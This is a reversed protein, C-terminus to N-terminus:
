KQAFLTTITLITVVLFILLYNRLRTLASDDDSSILLVFLIGILVGVSLVIGHIKGLVISSLTIVVLPIIFVIQQYTHSEHLKARHESFLKTLVLGCLIGSLLYPDGIEFLVSRGVMAVSRITLLTLIIISLHKTIKEYADNKPLLLFNPQLAAFSTFAIIVGYFEAARYSLLLITAILATTSWTTKCRYSAHAAIVGLAICIVIFHPNFLIIKTTAAASFILFSASAVSLMQIPKKWSYYTAVFISILMSGAGAASLLLPFFAASDSGTYFYAAGLIGLTSIVASQSINNEPQDDPKFHSALLTGLLFAIFVFVEATALRILSVCALSLAGIGLNFLAANNHAANIIRRLHEAFIFLLFGAFLAAGSYMSHLFSFSLVFFTLVPIIFKYHELNAYLETKSAAARDSLYIAVFVSLVASILTFVVPFLM